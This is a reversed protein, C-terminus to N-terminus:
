LGFGAFFSRVETEARGRTFGYRTQLTGILREAFGEIHELDDDSLRSWQTQAEDKLQHWRRRLLESDVQGM